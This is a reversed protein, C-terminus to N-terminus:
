PLLSKLLSMTDLVSPLLKPFQAEAIRAVLKVLSM